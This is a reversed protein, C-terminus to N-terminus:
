SLLQMGVIPASRDSVSNASRKTSNEFRLSRRTLLIFFAPRVKPEDQWNFPIAGAFISPLAEMVRSHRQRDTLRAEWSRRRLRNGRNNCEFACRLSCVSRVPLALNARLAFCNVLGSSTQTAVERILMYSAEPHPRGTVIVPTGVSLVPTSASCAM